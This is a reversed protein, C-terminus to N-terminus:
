YGSFSSIVWLNNLLWNFDLVLTFFSAKPTGTELTVTIHQFKGTDSISELLLYLHSSGM